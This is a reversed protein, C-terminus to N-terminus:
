IRLVTSFISVSQQAANPPPRGWTAVSVVEVILMTPAAQVVPVKQWNRQASCDPRQQSVAAVVDGRIDTCHKSSGPDSAKEILAHSLRSEGAVQVITATEICKGLYARKLTRSGDASHCWVMESPMVHMALLGLLWGLLRQYLRLHKLAPPLSNYSVCM